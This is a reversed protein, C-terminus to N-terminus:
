DDCVCYAKVYPKRHRRIGLPIRKTVNEAIERKFLGLIGGKGSESALLRLSLVYQWFIFDCVLMKREIEIQQTPHETSQDPPQRGRSIYEIM